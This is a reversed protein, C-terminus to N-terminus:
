LGLNRGYVERTFTRTIYDGTDPDPKDSRVELTIEIVKVRSADSGLGVGSAPTLDVGNTSNIFTLNTVGDALVRGNRTLTRTSHDWIYSVVEDIGTTNRDGNLDMSLGLRTVNLAPFVGSSVAIGVLGLQPHAPDCGANRIDRELLDIIARLDQQATLVREQSISHVHHTQYTLYVAAMLLLSLVLVIMLEVLTLGSTGRLITIKMM